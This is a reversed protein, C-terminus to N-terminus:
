ESMLRKEGELDRLPKIDQSVELTGLYDGRDNRVAFYRIHVFKNGLKIWFDENDKKGSRLDEVIKEVIHVSKPPHCNKVERGIITKQREFIREKGMTFYKVKDDAGVFTMDIPVTNLISNIEEPTLGGADFDMRDEKAAEGSKSYEYDPDTEGKAILEWDDDTFVESVMPIMIDEEKSIMERTQDVADNLVKEIEPINVDKEDLLNKAKKFKGRIEDDVGWMVQPPATIGHKEMFPFIRNEKLSYHSDISKVFDLTVVLKKRDRDSESNVYLELAPVLLDDLWEEISRNESKVAEVTIDKPSGKVPSDEAHIDKISGKFVSAHVDCLNQIESVPMGEAVLAQEMQTIELATVGDTLKEFEDKVEEVSAGKHLKKIIEKLKEKRYEKNDMLESM